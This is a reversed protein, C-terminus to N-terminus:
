DIKSIFFWEREVNENQPSPFFFTTRNASVILSISIFLGIAVTFFYCFFLTHLYVHYKVCLTPMDWKWPCGVITDIESCSKFTEILVGARISEGM